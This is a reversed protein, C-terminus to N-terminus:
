KINKRKKSFINRGKKHTRATGGTMKNQTADNVAPM